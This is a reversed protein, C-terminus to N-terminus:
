PTNAQGMDKTLHTYIYHVPDEKPYERGQPRPKKLIEVLDEYFQESNIVQGIKANTTAEDINGFEWPANQNKHIFLPFGAYIAEAITGGGPKTMFVDALCGIYPIDESFGISQIQLHQKKNQDAIKKIEDQMQKNNGCGVLVSMPINTNKKLINDIYDNAINGVGQAGMMIFVKGAEKRCAWLKEKQKQAEQQLDPRTFALKVPYGIAAVIKKQQLEQSTIKKPRKRSKYDLFTNESPAFFKICSLGYKSTTAAIEQLKPSISGFDCIQFNLEMVGESLLRVNYDHHSTSVFYKTGALVKKIEEAHPYPIFLALKKALARLKKNYSPSNLQQEIESYCRSYAIGTCMKLPDQENDTLATEDVIKIIIRDNLSSTKIALTDTHKLGEIKGSLRELIANSISRHAGGSSSTGIVLCPSNSVRTPKTPYKKILEQCFVELFQKEQPKLSQKGLLINKVLEQNNGLYDSYKILRKRMAKALDGSSKCTNKATEFAEHLFKSKELDECKQYFDLHSGTLKTYRRNDIDIQEVVDLDDVFKSM